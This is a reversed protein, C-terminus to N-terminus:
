PESMFTSVSDKWARAGEVGIAHGCDPVVDVDQSGLKEALLKVQDVPAMLDLEGVCLKTIIGTQGLRDGMNRVHYPDSEDRVEAQKLIASLGEPTNNTSIHTLFRQRMEDSLQRLFRPSYTALLIAWAFSRLSPDSQIIDKFSDMALHGYDSRDCGVGTLHLKRIRHQPSCAAAMAVRGGFSFGAIDVVDNPSDTVEELVNLLQEAQLPLSVDDFSEVVADSRKGQGLCEYVVVQRNRSLSPLQHEWSAATQAIGGLLVLTPYLVDSAAPVVVCPRGCIVRREALQTGLGHALFITTAVIFLLLFVRLM